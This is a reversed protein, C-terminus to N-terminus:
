QWASIRLRVKGRIGPVSPQRSGDAAVTHSDFPIAIEVEEGSIKKADIETHAAAVGADQWAYSIKWKGGAQTPPTLDLILSNRFLYGGEYHENIWLKREIEYDPVRVGLTMGYSLSRRDPNVRARNALFVSSLYHSRQQKWEAQSFCSVSDEESMRRTLYWLKGRPSALAEVQYLADVQRGQDVAKQVPEPLRIEDVDLWVDVRVDGFLFRALNQFAEESNVIGFFGSHARYAFAKACYAGISGDANLGRLTANKILVLGDSGHGVFTRSLGAATTYDMRNTGVMCFVRRSPFRDEPILDVRKHQKAAAKLDLYEPMRKDRDFNNMDFASLWQPVNVGAVDIGNHPTAYTFLKDVYRRAQKPDLAPNQLFARCVLGGMSHAVLYCRFDAPKVGNDPNGCILDRTKVILDGLERAFTEIKPTTGTGFLGSANDYYRHIIISRSGLRNRTPQGEADTEWEPDLIDRGDEYVDSYGFESMLRVIPSEFVYKRPKRSPDSVARYVTSGLNFGCFPDATTEDIEGRTMAYGRVYIIPYYPAEMKAM